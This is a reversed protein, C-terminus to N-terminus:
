ASFPDGLAVDRLPPFADIKALVVVRARYAIYGKVFKRYILNALLCQIEAARAHVCHQWFLPDATHLVLGVIGHEPQHEICLLEM